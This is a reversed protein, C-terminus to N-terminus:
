RQRDHQRRWRQRFADKSLTKILSGVRFNVRENIFGTLPRPPEDLEALAILAVWVSPWSNPNTAISEARRIVSALADGHKISRSPSDFITQRDGSKRKVKSSALMRLPSPCVALYDQSAGGANFYFLQVWPTMLDSEECWIFFHGIDIVGDFIPRVRGDEDAMGEAYDIWAGLISTAVRLKDSSAPEGFFDVANSNISVADANPAIGAAMMAAMAPSLELKLCRAMEDDRHKYAALLAYEKSLEEM